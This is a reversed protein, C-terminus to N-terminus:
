EPFHSQSFRGGNEHERTQKRQGFKQDKEKRVKRNGRQTKPHYVFSLKEFRKSSRLKWEDVSVFQQKCIHCKHDFPDSVTIENSIQGYEVFVLFHCQESYRQERIIEWPQNRRQRDFVRLLQRVQTGKEFERKVKRTRRPHEFGLQEKRVKQRVRNSRESDSVIQVSAWFNRQKQANGQNKLNRTRSCLFCCSRLCKQIQQFLRCLKKLKQRWAKWGVQLLYEQQRTLRQPSRFCLRRPRM